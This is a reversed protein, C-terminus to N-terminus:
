FEDTDNLFDINELVQFFEDEDDDGFSSESYTVNLNPSQVPNKNTKTSSAGTSTSGHSGVTSRQTSFAFSPRAVDPVPRPAPAPNNFLNVPRPRIRGMGVEIPGAEEEEEEEEDEIRLSMRYYAEIVKEPAFDCFETVRVDEKTLFVRRATRRKDLSRLPGKGRGPEEEECMSTVCILNTETITLIVQRKFRLLGVQFPVLYIDFYRRKKTYFERLSTV